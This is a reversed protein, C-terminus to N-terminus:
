FALNWTSPCHSLANKLTHTTQFLNIVM